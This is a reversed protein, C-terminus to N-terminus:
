FPRNLRFGVVVDSGADQLNRAVTVRVDDESTALGIGGDVALRQSALDWGHDGSWARGADVFVIAHLGGEVGRTRLQWLGVTYEAQALAIQDGEFTDIGHARLGDVGGLTFREQPPLTGALRSGGVARLALTAAPSLRVVSRVDALARTYDFDGGLGGGARQVEIWHYLGARMSRTHHAMRELRLLARHSEGEDIAPNARLPRSNRFWSHVHASSALTRYEDRRLHVSVTSFDPVRWSLYAGFGEREHYDRWDEHAVLLALSNELDDVQQLDLHDTRRVASVGLVFRAPPLLPQELQVGYLVRRRGTAYDLRAALRPYMTEPRQLQGRLGYRLLDVRNYDLTLDVTGPARSARDRWPEPATLLEDGVPARLWQSEDDGVLHVSARLPPEAGASDWPSTGPHFSLTDPPPDAAAPCPAAAAAALLAAALALVFLPKM